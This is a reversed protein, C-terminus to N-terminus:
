GTSLGSRERSSFAHNPAFAIYSRAPKLSTARRLGVRDGALFRLGSKEGDRGPGPDDVGDGPFEVGKVVFTGVDAIAHM